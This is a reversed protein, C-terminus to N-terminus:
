PVILRFFVCGNTLDIPWILENAVTSNPVNVWNTSIGVTSRNTQVQIAWGIHDQPWSIVLTNSGTARLTINTPTMSMGGVVSLVRITGDMAIRNTWTYSEGNAGTLPLDVTAFSGSITGNLLQFTDSVSLQGGSNTVTLTGGCIIKNAVIRDSNPASARNLEMLTTGGLAITGTVTLAGVGDGPELNGGGSAADVSGRVTGGGKLTQNANLTLLSDSRGTVDLAAGSVVDITASNAISGDGGSGASLALVGNSVTTAGSYTNQGTLTWTGAGVKIISTIGDDSITGAFNTSSNKTGVRWKPNLASENGQGVMAGSTGGLEGIDITANATNARDMIVGDNLYIAANAYGFNNNIRMEDIATNKPIVNILGTFGSWDGALDDRVYNVMLNLTGAGTLTSATSGRSPLRLTGVQNSPVILPNRFTNYTPTTSGNHGFLQLIGGSFTVANTTPGVGSLGGTLSSNAENSGLALVGNSIVTGGAYSNANSLTLTGPGDKILSTTAGMIRGSGAFIYEGATNVTVSAPNLFLSGLDVVTNASSDDFLVKDGSSFVAPSSGSLWNVSTVDWLNLGGDGVWVLNSAAKLTLGVRSSTATPNCSGSVVVEYGQAGTVVDGSSVPFLTLNPTTAGSIVGGDLLNTGGRRWQYTLGDGGALVSFTGASGAVANMAVPESVISPPSYLGLTAQGSMWFTGSTTTNSGFVTYVGTLTQDGFSIAADTGSLATGTFANNAMLWYDIGTQSGSLGVPFSSGSGGCSSGGGTVQYITEPTGSPPTVQDWSTGVRVEDLYFTFLPSPSAPSLYYFTQISSNDANNTTALTAAPISTEAAGLSNNPNLWLAVEDDNTGAANYQYRLVVLYTANTTLPYTAAGAGSPPTVAYPSNKAIWLRGASDVYVGANINPTSNSSGSLCALWRLGGAPPLAQLNLLFSAYVTTNLQPTFTAGRNKGGLYAMLGKSDPTGALGPYSLAAAARIRACSSSVSNGVLWINTSTSGGLNENETYTAPFPEYFPLTSQAQTNSLGLAVVAVALAGRLRSPRLSMAAGSRNMLSLVNNKM